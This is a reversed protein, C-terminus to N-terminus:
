YDATLKGEKNIFVYVYDELLNDDIDYYQMKYKVNGNTCSVYKTEVIDSSTENYGASELLDVINDRSLTTLDKIM